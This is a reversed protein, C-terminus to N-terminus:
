SISPEVDQWRHLRRDDKSNTKSLQDNRAVEIIHAVVLFRNGLVLVAHGDGYLGDRCYPCLSRLTNITVELSPLQGAFSSPFRLSAREGTASALRKSMSIIVM